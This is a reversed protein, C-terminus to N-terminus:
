LVPREDYWKKPFFRDYDLAELLAIPGDKPIYLVRRAERAFFDSTLYQASLLPRQMGDECAIGAMKEIWDLTYTDQGGMFQTHCNALFNEWTKPYLDKLQAITQMVPWLTVGFGGLLGIGKEIMDIHGLSYFEDIAFLVRYKGQLPVREMTDLGLELLVRLINSLSTTLNSSSICIYVTTPREKLARLSFDSRELVKQASPTDLFATQEELVGFIGSREAEAKANIRKVVAAPGGGQFTCASITELMTEYPDAWPMQVNLRACEQVAEEYAEEDGQMILKRIYVLNHHDSSKEHLVYLIIAILLARAQTCFYAENGGGSAIPIPILAHAIRSTRDYLRPDEIDLESIPNWSALPLSKALPLKETTGDLDLVYVDQGM